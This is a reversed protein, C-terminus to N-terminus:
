VWGIMLEGVCVVPNSFRWSFPKSHRMDTPIICKEHRLSFRIVQQIQNWHEYITINLDKKLVFLVNLQRFPYLKIEMLIISTSGLHVNVNRHQNFVMSFTPTDNSVMNLQIM